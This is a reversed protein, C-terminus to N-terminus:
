KKAAPPPIAPKGERTTPTSSAGKNFHVWVMCDSGKLCSNRHVIKGPQTFYSGVPLPIEAADGAQQESFTGQVVVATYEEDHTHWGSDAGATLKIFMGAPNKDGFKGEVFGFSPGKPGYPQAWQIQDPTTHVKPKAPTALALASLTVFSSLLLLKKM